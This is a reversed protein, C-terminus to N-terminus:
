QTIAFETRSTAYDGRWINWMRPMLPLKVMIHESAGPSSTQSAFDKDGSRDVVLKKEGTHTRMHRTVQVATSFKKGYEHCFYTKEGTHTRM